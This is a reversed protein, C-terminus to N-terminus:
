KKKLKPLVIDLFLGSALGSLFCTFLIFAMLFNGLDEFGESPLKSQYFYYISILLALLPLLYKIYKKGLTLRHLLYTLLSFIIVVAIIILVFREL